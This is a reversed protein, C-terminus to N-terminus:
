SEGKEPLSSSTLTKTEPTFLVISSCRGGPKRKRGREARRDCFGSARVRSLTRVSCKLM